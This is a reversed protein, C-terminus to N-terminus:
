GRVDVIRDKFIELAAKILPDNKFDEKTLGNTAPKAAPKPAAQTPATASLGAAPGSKAPAAAPTATWGEPREAQIFKVQTQAHGLERLKTQLLTHTKPVDLLNLHEAFEPALGFTFTRGDFAVPHTEKLYSATFPTARGAAEVM